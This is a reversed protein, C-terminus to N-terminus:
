FLCRAPVMRGVGETRQLPVSSALLISGVRDPSYHSLLILTLM